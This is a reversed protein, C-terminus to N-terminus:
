ERAARVVILCFPPFADRPLPSPQRCHKICAPYVLWIRESPHESRRTKWDNGLTKGSTVSRRLVQGFKKERGKGPVPFPSSKLLDSRSFWLGTTRSIQHSRCLFCPCFNREFVNLLSFSSEPKGFAGSGLRRASLCRLPCINEFKWTTETPRIENIITMQQTPRPSSLPTPTM